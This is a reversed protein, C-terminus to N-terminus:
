APPHPTPPPHSPPPHPNHHRQVSADCHDRSPASSYPQRSSDLAYIRCATSGRTGRSHLLTAHAHPPLLSAHRQRHATALLCLSAAQVESWRRRCPRMNRAIGPHTRKLLRRVVIIGTPRVHSSARACVRGPNSLLAKPVTCLPLMLGPGRSAHPRHPLSLPLLAVRVACEGKSAASRRAGGPGPRM